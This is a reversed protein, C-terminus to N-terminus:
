QQARDASAAGFVCPAGDQDHVAVSRLEPVVAVSCPAHHLVAATITGLQRTALAPRHHHGLVVLEDPARDVLLEDVVSGVRVLSTAHVAPFQQTYPALEDRLRQHTATALDSPAANGPAPWQAPGVVHIAVLPVRRRSAQEFAFRLTAEAAATEDVAVAVRTITGRAPGVAVVPSDARALVREAISGFWIRGLAGRGSRGIVVLDMQKSLLLLIRAPRGILVRGRVAVAPQEAEVLRVAADVLPRASMRLESRISATTAWLNMSGADCAHVVNLRAGRSAAERAAWLVAVDSQTSGDVGVLIENNAM